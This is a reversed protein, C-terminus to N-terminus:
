ISDDRRDSAVAQDSEEASSQSAVMISIAFAIIAAIKRM